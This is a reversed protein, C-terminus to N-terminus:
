RGVNGFPISVAARVVDVGRNRVFDGLDNDVLEDNAFSRTTGTFYHLYEVRLRAWRMWAYEVGGGVVAGSRNIRITGSPGGVAHGPYEFAGYENSTWGWGATVFPLWRGEEGLAWGVRGRVSALWDLRNRV